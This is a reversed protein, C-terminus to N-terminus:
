GPVGKRNMEILARLSKAIIGIDRSGSQAAVQTCVDIADKIGANHAEGLAATWLELLIDPDFKHSYIASFVELAYRVRAQADKPLEDLTIM